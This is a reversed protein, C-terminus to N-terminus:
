EKQRSSETMIKLTLEGIFDELAALSQIEQNRPYRRASMTVSRWSLRTAIPQLAKGAEPAYGGLNFKLEYTPVDASIGITGVKQFREKDATIRKAAVDASALDHIGLDLVTEIFSRLEAESLQMEFKRDYDYTVARGNGFIQLAPFDPITGALLDERKVSRYGGKGDLEFILYDATKPYEIQSTPKTETWAPLSALLVIFAIFFVRM